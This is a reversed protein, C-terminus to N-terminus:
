KYTLKSLEKKMPFHLIRRCYIVDPKSQVRLVWWVSASFLFIRCTFSIYFCTRHDLSLVLQYMIYYCKWKNGKLFHLNNPLTNIFTAEITWVVFVGHFCLICLAFFSVVLEEKFLDQSGSWVISCKHADSSLGNIERESYTFKKDTHQYIKSWYIIYFGVFYLGCLLSIIWNTVSCTIWFYCLYFM